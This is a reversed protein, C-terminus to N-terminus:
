LNSSVFSPDVGQLGSVPSFHTPPYARATVTILSNSTARFSLLGNYKFAPYNIGLLFTLGIKIKSLIKPVIKLASEPVVQEFPVNGTM